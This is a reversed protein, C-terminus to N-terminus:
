HIYIIFLFSSASRAFCVFSCELEWRRMAKSRLAEGRKAERILEAESASCDANRHAGCRKAERILSASCFLLMEHRIAVSRSVVHATSRVQERRQTAKSRQCLV